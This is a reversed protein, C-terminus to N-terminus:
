EDEPQPYSPLLAADTGLNPINMSLDPVRLATPVGLEEELKEMRDRTNGVNFQIVAQPADIGYIRRCVKELLWQYHKLLQTSRAVQVMSGSAKLAEQSEEMAKLANAAQAHKYQDEAWTLLLLYLRTSKIGLEEALDAVREGDSYRELVQETVQKLDKGTLPGVHGRIKRKGEVAPVLM